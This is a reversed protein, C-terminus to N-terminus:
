EINSKTGIDTSGNSDICIHNDMVNNSKVM